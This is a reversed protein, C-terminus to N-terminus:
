RLVIRAVEELERRIEEVMTRSAEQHPKRGEGREALLAQIGASTANVTAASRREFLRRRQEGSVGWKAAVREYCNSDSAPGGGHDDVLRLAHRVGALRSVAEAYPEFDPEPAALPQRHLM